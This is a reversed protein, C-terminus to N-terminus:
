NSIDVVAIAQLQVLMGGRLDQVSTHRAPRNRPDPFRELWAENLVARVSEHAVLATISGVDDLAAGAQELVAALNEFAHRAQAQAGAALKGTAPDKGAVGSTFIMNGVRAGMPIPTAGHSVGDIEISRRKTMHLDGQDNAHNPRGTM